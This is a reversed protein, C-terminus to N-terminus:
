DNKFFGKLGVTIGMASLFVGLFFTIIFLAGDNVRSAEISFIGLGVGFLAFYLGAVMLKIGSTQNDFGLYFLIGGIIGFGAVIAMILITMSM